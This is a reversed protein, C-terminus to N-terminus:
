RLVPLPVVSAENKIDHPTISAALGKATNEGAVAPIALLSPQASTTSNSSRPESHISTQRCVRDSKAPADRLTQRMLSSSRAFIASVADPGLRTRVSAPSTSACSTAAIISASLYRAAFAALVPLLVRRPRRNLLSM